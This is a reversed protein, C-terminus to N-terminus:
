TVSFGGDIFITQGTVYASSDGALFVAIGTFDALVGNRGTMTRRAMAATRVPDQFVAENLPTHVFGPAIANVCM